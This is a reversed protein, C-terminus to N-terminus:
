VKSVKSLDVAMCPRFGNLDSPVGYEKIGGDPLVYYIRDDRYASQTWWNCKVGDMTKFERATRSGMNGKLYTFGNTLQM